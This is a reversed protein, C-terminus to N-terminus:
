GHYGVHPCASGMRLPPDWCAGTKPYMNSIGVGKSLFSRIQHSLVYPLPMKLLGTLWAMVCHALANPLKFAITSDRTNTTKIV